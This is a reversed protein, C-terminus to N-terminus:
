VFHDWALLFYSTAGCRRFSVSIARKQIETGSIMLSTLALYRTLSTVRDPASSSSVVSVGLGFLLSISACAFTLAWSVLWLGFLPLNSFPDCELPECWTELPESGSIAYMNWILLVSIKGASTLLSSCTVSAWRSISSYSRSFIKSWCCVWSRYQGLQLDHMVRLTIRLFLFLVALGAVGSSGGFLGCVSCTSGESGAGPLSSGSDGSTNLHKDHKEKKM